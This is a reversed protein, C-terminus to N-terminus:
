GSVEEIYNDSLGPLQFNAPEPALAGLSKLNNIPGAKIIRGDGNAVVVFPTVTVGLEASIRSGEKIATVNPPLGMAPDGDIWALAVPADWSQARIADLLSVCSKCTTSLFFIVRPEPIALSGGLLERLSKGLLHGYPKNAQAAPIAQELRQLRVLLNGVAFTLLAIALWSIILAAIEFSMKTNLLSNM